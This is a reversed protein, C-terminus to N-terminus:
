AVGRLSLYQSLPIRQVPSSSPRPRPRKPRILRPLVLVGAENLQPAEDVAPVIRLLVTPPTPKLIWPTAPARPPQVTFLDLLPVEVPKGDRIVTKKAAALKGALYTEAAHWAAYRARDEAVDNAGRVWKLKCFLGADRADGKSVTAQDFTTFLPRGQADEGCQTSITRWLTIKGNESKAPECHLHEGLDPLKGKVAYTILWGCAQLVADYAIRNAQCHPGLGYGIQYPELDLPLPDRNKEAAKIADELDLIAREIALADAHPLGLAIPMGPDRSWNDVRTFLGGAWMPHVSRVSGEGERGRKPLEDRICWRLIEEISLVRRARLDEPTSSSSKSASAIM